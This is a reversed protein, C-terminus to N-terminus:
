VGLRSHKKATNTFKYDVFTKMESLIVAKENEAAALKTKLSTWRDKYEKSNTRKLDVKRAALTVLLASTTHAGVAKKSIKSM